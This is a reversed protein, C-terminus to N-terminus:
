DETEAEESRSDGTGQERDGEEKRITWLYVGDAGLKLSKEPPWDRGMDFDHSVVRSGARLEKFLKPKLRQNLEPWLYLMVVTADSIDTEFLDAVKFTVLHEVGAKKANANAERIRQPDIDIGVGLTGFKKAAAIVIRGDGCGLDYVVDGSRVNGLELMADVVEHRTPVYWIDPERAPKTAEQGLAVSALLTLTALFTKGSLNNM